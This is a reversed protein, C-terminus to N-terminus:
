RTAKFETSQVAAQLAALNEQCEATVKRKQGLSVAFSRVNSNRRSLEIIEANIERFDLYSAKAEDVFPRSAQDVLAQLRNLADM